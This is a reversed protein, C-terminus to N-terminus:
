LISFVQGARPGLRVSGYFHFLGAERPLGRRSYPYLLRLLTFCHCLLEPCSELAQCQELPGARRALKIRM